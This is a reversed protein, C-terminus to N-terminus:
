CKTFKIFTPAYILMCALSLTTFLDQYYPMHFIGILSAGEPLALGLVFTAFKSKAKPLFLIRIVLSSFLLIITPVVLVLNVSMPEPNETGLLFRYSFTASLLAVWVAWFITKEPNM